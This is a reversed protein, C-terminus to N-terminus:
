FPDDPRATFDWTEGQRAPPPKQHNQHNARQYSVKEGHLELGWATVAFSNRWEGTAEDKWNSTTLTGTVSLRHGVQAGALLREALNGFATARFKDKRVVLIIEAMTAGTKTTIPRLREITGSLRAENLDTM